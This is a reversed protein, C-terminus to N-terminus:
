SVPGQGIQNMYENTLTGIVALHNVQLLGPQVIGCARVWSPAGLASCRVRATKRVRKGHITLYAYHNKEMM